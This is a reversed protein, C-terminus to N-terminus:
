LRSSSAIEEKMEIILKCLKDIQQQQSELEKHQKEITQNQVENQRILEQLGIMTVGAVDSPSLFKDAENSEM